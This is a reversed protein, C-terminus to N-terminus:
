KIINGDLNLDFGNFFDRLIVFISYKLYPITITILFITMELTIVIYLYNKIYM